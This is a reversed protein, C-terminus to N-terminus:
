KASTIKGQRYADLYRALVDEQEPKLKSKRSMAGMWRGWESDNYNKPEYFRHCKACKAVYLKRGAAADKDTLEGAFSGALGGALLFFLTLLTLRM